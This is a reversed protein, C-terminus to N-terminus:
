AYEKFPRGTGPEVVSRQVCVNQGFFGPVYLSVEEEIKGDPTDPLILDVM